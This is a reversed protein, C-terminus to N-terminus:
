GDKSVDLGQGKVAVRGKGLVWGGAGSLMCGTDCLVGEVWWGGCFGRGGGSGQESRHAPFSLGGPRM